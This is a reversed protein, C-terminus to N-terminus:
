QKAEKPIKLLRILQSNYSEDKILKHNDLWKKVRPSVKMSDTAWEDNAM